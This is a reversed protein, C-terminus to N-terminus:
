PRDHDGLGDPISGHKLKRREAEFGASDRASRALAVPQGAVGEAGGVGQRRGVSLNRRAM